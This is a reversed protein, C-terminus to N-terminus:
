TRSKSRFEYNMLSLYPFDFVAGRGHVKKASDM